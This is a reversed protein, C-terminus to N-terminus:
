TAWDMCSTTSAGNSKHAHIDCNFTSDCVCKNFHEMELYGTQAAFSAYQNIIIADHVSWLTKHTHTHALALANLNQLPVWLNDDILTILHCVINFRQTYMQQANNQAPENDDTPDIFVVIRKKKKLRSFHGFFSVFIFSIRFSKKHRRYTWVLKTLVLNNHRKIEFHWVSCFM